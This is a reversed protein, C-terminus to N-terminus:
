HVNLFVIKIWKLFGYSIDLLIIRWSDRKLSGEKTHGQLKDRVVKKLPRTSETM